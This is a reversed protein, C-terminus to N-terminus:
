DKIPPRCVKSSALEMGSYFYSPKDKEEESQAGEGKKGLADDIMGDIGYGGGPYYYTASTHPSEVWRGALYWKHRRWEESEDMMALYLASALAPSLPSTLLTLPLKHKDIATQSTLLLAPQPVAKAKGQAATAPAKLLAFADRIPETSGKAKPSTMSAPREVPSPDSEQPADRRKSFWSELSTGAKRKGASKVRPLLLEEAARSLDGKASLLAARLEAKPYSAPELLSALLLLQTPEDVAEQGPM